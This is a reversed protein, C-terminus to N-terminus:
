WSFPVPVFCLAFIAIAAAGLVKRGRDLPTIDNVPPPHDLGIILILMAWFMWIMGPEGSIFSLLVLVGVTLRALYYNWKGFLAYCIHGGDLQGAPLLNLMTVFFGIWAAFAIPHLFLDTGEPGTGKFLYILGRVVISEGLHLGGGSTVYGFESLRVGIIFAPVSVLFGAVPGAAGIDLLGKRDPIVSRTKIVAGLTGLFTPAPIFYPLTAKVGHARSALYHGLEHIGLILLLTSSFPIGKLLLVPRDIVLLLGSLFGGRHALGAGAVLTTLVTLLLLLVNVRVNPKRASSRARIVRVEVGSELRRILPVYGRRGLREKMLGIAQEDPVRLSGHFRLQRPSVVTERIDILDSIEGQLEGILHKISKPDM